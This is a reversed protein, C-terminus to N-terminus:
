RAEASLQSAFFTSASALEIEKTSFHPRGEFLVAPKSM